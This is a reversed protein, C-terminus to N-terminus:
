AGCIFTGMHRPCHTLIYKGVEESLHIGRHNARMTLMSLKEEDALPQLQFVMGWSLRSVLDPLSLIFQNRHIM